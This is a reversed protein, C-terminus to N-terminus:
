KVYEKSIREVVRLKASRSRPNRSRENESAIVPKKTLVRVSAEPGNALARFTHKVIRDELSHFSVACVRGGPALIDVADRLAPELVDLERNVAIRLAQFTRTACHIRGHRYSAPVAREVVAALQWTTGIVGQMRAQVIARAIRRSYREEGLQYILDAVETEPLDRVLDAATRGERQDMSMDLPGDERFSFGREARDLQPSSVGLDFIVGDVRSVGSGMILAKLDCFNGLRFHVRHAFERLRMQSEALAAADRDIGVLIGDPATRDLLCAALGAYGLTCDVYVGGPKCQLWFLIEEVLVPEHSDRASDIEMEVWKVGSM